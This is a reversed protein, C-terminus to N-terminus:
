ATPKLSRTDHTTLANATTPSHKSSRTPPRPGYSHDGWLLWLQWIATMVCTLLSGLGVVVLAVSVVRRIGFREMLAAAFLQDHPTNQATGAIPAARVACGTLGTILIGVCTSGPWRWRM